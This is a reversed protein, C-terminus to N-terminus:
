RRVERADAATTVLDEAGDSRERRLSRVLPVTGALLALLIDM